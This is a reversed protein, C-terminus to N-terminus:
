RKIASAMSKLLITLSENLRRTAEPTKNEPKAREKQLAQAVEKMTNLSAGERSIRDIRAIVDEVSSSVVPTQQAIIQAAAAQAQAAAKAAQAQAAAQAQMAAQAQAAQEHARAILEADTEASLNSKKEQIFKPEDLKFLDASNTAEALNIGDAIAKNDSCDCKCNSKILRDLLEMYEEYTKVVGARIAISILGALFSFILGVAIVLALATYVNTINYAGNTISSYALYNGIAFIFGAMAASIVLVIKCFNAAFSTAFPALVCADIGMVDSPKEGANARFFLKRAKNPLEDANAVVDALFPNNLSLRAVKKFKRANGTALSFILGLIFTLAIAGVCVYLWKDLSIKSIIPNIKDFIFM